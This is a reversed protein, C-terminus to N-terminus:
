SFHKRMAIHEIGAEVFTEGEAEYGLREYFVNAHAQSNLKLSRFGHKLAEEEVKEMLLTGLGKGRHERLVAVREVKGVGREGEYARLRATGVAVGQEDVALFHLTGEAGDHEDNEVEEPVNQEEIFVARRVGFAQNLHQPNRILFIDYYM